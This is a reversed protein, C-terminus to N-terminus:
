LKKAAARSRLYRLLTIIASDDGAAGPKLVVPRGTLHGGVVEGAAIGTLPEDDVEIAGAGLTTLIAQATSGGGLLLGAPAGRKALVFALHALHEVVLDVARPVEPLVGTAFVVVDRKAKLEALARAIAGALEPVLQEEWTFDTCVVPVITLGAERAAEVQKEMKRSASALVALIPGDEEQPWSPRAAPGFLETAVAGALGASGALVPLPYTALAQKALIALDNDTEADIIVVQGVSLECRGARLDTLPCHHVQLNSQQSQLLEAINSFRVPAQPDRSMETEAVPIGDILAIGNVTTRGRAPFAPAFAIPRSLAETM